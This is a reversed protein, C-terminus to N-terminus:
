KGRTLPVDQGYEVDDVKVSDFLLKDLIFLQSDLSALKENAVIDLHKRSILSDRKVTLEKKLTDLRRSDEKLTHIINSAMCLEASTKNLKEELTRCDEELDFVKERLEEITDGSDTRENLEDLLRDLTNFDTEDGERLHNLRLQLYESNKVSNMLYKLLESALRSLDKDSINM